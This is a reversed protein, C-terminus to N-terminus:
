ILLILFLHWFKNILDRENGDEVWERSNNALFTYVEAKIITGDNNRDADTKWDGDYSKLFHYIRTIGNDSM